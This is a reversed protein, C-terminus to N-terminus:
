NQCPKLELMLILALASMSALMPMLALMLILV